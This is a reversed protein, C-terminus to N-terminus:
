KIVGFQYIKSFKDNPNSLFFGGQPLRYFNRQFDQLGMDIRFSNVLSLTTEQQYKGTGNGNGRYHDKWGRKAHGLFEHEMVRGLNITRLAFDPLDTSFGKLNSNEDFYSLDIFANGNTLSARGPTGYLYDNMGFTLSMSKNNNTRAKEKRGGPKLAQIWENRANESVLLGSANSTKTNKNYLKDSAKKNYSLKYGFLKRKELNLEIGYENRFTEQVKHFEKKTKKGGKFRIPIWDGLPDNYWIPNLGMSAYPSEWPTVSTKPDIGWWRVVRTDLERFYTSYHAGTVNAIEDDKESGQNYGFLSNSRLTIKSKKATLEKNKYVAKLETNGYYTLKRCGM